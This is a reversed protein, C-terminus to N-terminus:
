LSNNFCNKDPDNIGCPVVLETSLFTTKKDKFDAKTNSGEM